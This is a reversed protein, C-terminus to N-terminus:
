PRCARLCEKAIEWEERTHVVLVRVLSDPTSIECDEAAPGENRVRDLAVGLFGFADAVAQRV